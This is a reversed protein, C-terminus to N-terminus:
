VRSLRIDLRKAKYMYICLLSVVVKLLFDFTIRDTMDTMQNQLLLIKITKVIIYWESCRAGTLHNYHRNHPKTVGTEQLNM